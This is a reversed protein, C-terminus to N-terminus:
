DVRFFSLRTSGVATNSGYLSRNGGGGGVSCGLHVSDGSNLYVLIPSHSNSVYGYTAVDAYLESKSVASGYVSNGTKIFSRLECYTTACYAFAQAQISYLGSQNVVPYLVSYETIDSSQTNTTALSATKGYDSKPNWIVQPADLVTAQITHDPADATDYQYRIKGVCVCYDTIVKTYTSSTELLLFDDDTATTSAPCRTFGSYGGLAWVIGGAADWIAYVYATKIEADLSGKSWYNAADAMAIQGTGSKYTGNRSRFTGGTADPIMVSIINAANPAAGSSKAFIDLLNVTANVTPALNKILQQNTLPATAKAAEAGALEEAATAFTTGSSAPNLLEYRTGALNYQIQCVMGAGKIDGVALAVGGQKVITHATTGDAKFTPTTTANAAAAVFDLRLMDTLAAITPTYVGTIADATGGAAVVPVQSGTDGKDGKIPLPFTDEGPEGQESPIYVINASQGIDGKPGPIMMPEEPPEADMGPVFLGPIGQGGTAGPSGVYIVQGITNLVEVSKGDFHLSYGAFLQLDKAILRRATGASPLVYLNVNETTANTNVLVISLVADATAAIYLDGIANPLQGTAMQTVVSNKYGFISYDVKGASTSDGQVKDGSNLGIM